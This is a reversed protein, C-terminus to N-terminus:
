PCLWNKHWYINVKNKKKKFLYYEFHKM